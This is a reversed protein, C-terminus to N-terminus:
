DLMQFDLGLLNKSPLLLPFLPLIPTHLYLQDLLQYKQQSKPNTM